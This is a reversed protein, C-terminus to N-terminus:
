LDKWRYSVVSSHSGSQMEPLNCELYTMGDANISIGNLSLQASGQSTTSANSSSVCATGNAECTRVFCTVAKGTHTDNVLVALNLADQTTSYQQIPCRVITNLTTSANRVSGNSYTIAALTSGDQVCSLGPFSLEVASVPSLAGVVAIFTWASIHSIKM